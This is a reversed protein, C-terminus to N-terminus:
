LEAADVLWQIRLVLRGWRFLASSLLNVVKSVVKLLVSGEAILLTLLKGLRCLVDLLM